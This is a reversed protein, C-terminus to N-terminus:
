YQEQQFNYLHKLYTSITRSSECCQNSKSSKHKYVLGYTKKMLIEVDEVRSIAKGNSKEEFLFLLVFM